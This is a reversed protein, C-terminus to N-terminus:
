PNVSGPSPTGVDWNNPDNGYLNADIRAL